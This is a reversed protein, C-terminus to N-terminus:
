CSSCHGQQMRVFVARSRIGPEVQYPLIKMQPDGQLENSGGLYAGISGPVAVGELVRLFGEVGWTARSCVLGQMHQLDEARAQQASVRGALGLDRIAQKCFNIKKRDADVLHVNLQPEVIAWTMGVYGGGCGLDSIQGPMGEGLNNKLARLAKVPDLLNELIYDDVKLNTTINIKEGWRSSLEYYGALLDIAEISIAIENMAALEQLKRNFLSM